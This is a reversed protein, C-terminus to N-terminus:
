LHNFLHFNVFFMKQVVHFICQVGSDFYGASLLIDSLVQVLYQYAAFVFGFGHSIFVNGYFM